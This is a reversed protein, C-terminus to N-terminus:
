EDDSSDQCETDAIAELSDEMTGMNKGLYSHDNDIAMVIHAYWYSKAREYEIRDCRYKVIELAREVKEKIDLMIEEFETQLDSTEDLEENM